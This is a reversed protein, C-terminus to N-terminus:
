GEAPKESPGYSYVVDGEPVFYLPSGGEVERRFVVQGDRQALLGLDDLSQVDVRKTSQDVNSRAVAIVRVGYRSSLRASENKNERILELVGLAGALLLCLIAGALGAWRTGEVPLKIGALAIEAPRNVNDGLKKAESRLLDQDATFIPKTLKFTFPPAYVDDIADGGIKGAIHVTPTITITYAGAPYGTEKEIAEILSLIQPLDLKVRTSAKAGTFPTPPLLESSKSWSDGAKIEQTVSLEGSANPPLSGNLNYTFGVEM